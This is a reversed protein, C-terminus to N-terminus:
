GLRWSDVMTDWNLANSSTDVGLMESVRAKNLEARADQVAAADAANAATGGGPRGSRQVASTMVVNCGSAVRRVGSTASGASTRDSDAASAVVEEDGGGGGGGRGNGSGSALLSSLRQKLATIEADRQRLRVQPHPFVRHMLRYAEDIIM